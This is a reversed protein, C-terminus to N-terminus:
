GEIPPPRMDPQLNEIYIYGPVAEKHRFEFKGKIYRGLLAYKYNEGEKGVLLWYISNPVYPGTVLKM